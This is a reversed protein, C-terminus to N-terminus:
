LAMRLTDSPFSQRLFALSQVSRSLGASGLGWASPVGSDSGNIEQQSPVRMVTEIQRKLSFSVTAAKVIDARMQRPANGARAWDLWASTRAWTLLIGPRLLTLCTTKMTLSFREKSLM